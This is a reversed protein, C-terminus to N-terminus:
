ILILKSLRLFRSIFSILWAKDTGNTKPITIKENRHEKSIAPINLARSGDINDPVLRPM